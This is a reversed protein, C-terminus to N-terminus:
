PGQFAEHEHIFWAPQLVCTAFYLANLTGIPTVLSRVREQHLIERHIKRTGRTACSIVGVVYTRHGMPRVPSYGPSVSTSQDVARVIFKWGYRNGTEGPFGVVRHSGTYKHRLMSCCTADVDCAHIRNNKKRKKKKKRSFM